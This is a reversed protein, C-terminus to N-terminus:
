SLGLTDLPTYRNVYNHMLTAYDGIQANSRIQASDFMNQVLFNFKKFTHMLSMIRSLIPLLLEM